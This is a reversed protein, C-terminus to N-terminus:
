GALTNHSTDGNGSDPPEPNSSGSSDSSSSGGGSSDSSGGSSSGSSSDSSTDGGSSEGSSSSGSSDSSGGSSDTGSSSGSSDTSSSDDPESPEPESVAPRSSSTTDDDSSSSSTGSSGSSPRKSGSGSSGGTVSAYWDNKEVGYQEIYDDPHIDDYIFAHILKSAFELDYYVYSSNQMLYKYDPIRAQEFTPSKLLVDFALGMIESYSLSTESCPILAKALKVYQSKGLTTAKNFLQEMVYRQRDTRGFDDNVGDANEAHRIRAYAVAQVGNMHQLGPEEILYDESDLGMRSCQEAILGNIGWNVRTGNEYGYVNIEGETLNVDIGGVADIIDAMGFFNVTAYESIDLGFVTNLTKIALEPGGRSYASNIKAYKTKGNYTIPVLSDRMVSIVKIEKTETNISLIMISDSLGKFSDITRTDIGFLAVNVIKEDIVNEFGLDEPNSSIENYNYDFMIRLIGLAVAFVLVLSVCTILTGKQWKALGRWWGAFGRKKKAYHRGGKRPPPSIEEPEFDQYSDMQELAKQAAAFIDDRNFSNDAMNVGM